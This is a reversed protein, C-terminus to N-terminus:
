RRTGGASFRGVRQGRGSVTTRGGSVPPGRACMDPYQDAAREFDQSFGIDEVRRQAHADGPM